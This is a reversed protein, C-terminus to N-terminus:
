SDQQQTWELSSTPVKQNATSSTSRAFQDRMANQKGGKGKAHLLFFEREGADKLSSWGCLKVLSQVKEFDVLFVLNEEGVKM